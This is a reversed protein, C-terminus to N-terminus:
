ARRRPRRRPGGARLMEAITDALQSLAVSMAQVEYATMPSAIPVTTRLTRLEPARHSKAFSVAAQASFALSGAADKDMRLIDVEISADEPATIAGTSSFLTTKPLRQSLDEILIRSIMQALPEGWEQNALVDLRFGESSRVIEPRQLYRAISVRHLVVTSPGGPEPTGPIPALTYLVPNPSTCASLAATAALAALLGRRPALYQTM